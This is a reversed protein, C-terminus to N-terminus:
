TNSGFDRRTLGSAYASLKEKVRLPEHVCQNFLCFGNGNDSKRTMVNEDVRATMQPGAIASLPNYRM